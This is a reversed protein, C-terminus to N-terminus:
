AAKSYAIADKVSKVDLEYLYAIFEVSDGGKHLNFITEPYINNNELVPHGMQRQPDIVVSKKKGIPWFRLALNDSGFELKKFFLKILNLNFQNTGDLSLVDEGMTLFVKKGDTKLGEILDKQAFPFATIYKESLIQHANLVEKPKVGAESLEAMIYFEILTHFSVARSENVKWSYQEGFADGLKGDWYVRLWRDVKSYDLQLIRAIESVTYCGIGIELKNEFNM